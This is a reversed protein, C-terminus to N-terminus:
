TQLLIFLILMQHNFKTFTKQRKRSNTSCFSTPFYEGSCEWSNAFIGKTLPPRAGGVPLYINKVACRSHTCILSVQIPQSAIWSPFNECQPTWKKHYHFTLKSAVRRRSEQVHPVLMCLLVIVQSATIPSIM